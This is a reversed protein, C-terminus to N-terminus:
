SLDLRSEDCEAFHQALASSHHFHGQIDVLWGMGARDEFHLGVLSEQMAGDDALRFRSQGPVLTGLSSSCIHADESKTLEIWWRVIPFKTGNAVLLQWERGGGATEFPEVWVAVDRLERHRQERRASGSQYLSVVVASFTAAAAVWDGLTGVVDPDLSIRPGLLRWILVVAAIM